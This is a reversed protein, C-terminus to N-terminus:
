STNARKSSQNMIRAVFNTDSSDNRLSELLGSVDGLVVGSSTGNTNNTPPITASQKGSAGGFGDKPVALLTDIMNRNEDNAFLEQVNGLRPTSSCSGVLQLQQELSIGKSELNMLARRVEVSQHVATPNGVMGIGHGGLVEVKGVNLCIRPNPNLFSSVIDGNSPHLVEQLHTTCHEVLSVKWDSIRVICGRKVSSSLATQIFAVVLTKGDHIVLLSPRASHLSLRMARVQVLRPRQAAPTIPGRRQTLAHFCVDEIWPNISSPGALLSSM